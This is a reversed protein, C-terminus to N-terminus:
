AYLNNELQKYSVNRIPNYNLKIRPSMAMLDAANLFFPESCQVDNVYRPDECIGPEICIDSINGSFTGTDELCALQEAIENATQVCRIFPSCFIKTPTRIPMKSYLWKGLRRAQEHGMQSLPTDQPRLAKSAWNPNIRDLREGHRIIFLNKAGIRHFM